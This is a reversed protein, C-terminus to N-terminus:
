ISEIFKQIDQQKLEIIAKSDGNFMAKNILSAELWRQIFPFDSSTVGNKLLQERLKNKIEPTFRKTLAIEYFISIKTESPKDSTFVVDEFKFIPEGKLKRFVNFTAITDYSCYRAIKEYEKNYYAEGIEDGVLDVKSIPINLSSCIAILSGGPGTGGFKWLENTDMNMQEWPKLHLNDLFDPIKLDNIVYRKCLFPYDFYKASHGLLRYKNQLYFAKLDEYFDILIKYEDEGYYEKVRLEGEKTLRTLSIACVKAFEAYLAASELWKESLEEESLGVGEKKFKYQWAKKLDPSLDEYNEEIRVTEIDITLIDTSEITELYLM